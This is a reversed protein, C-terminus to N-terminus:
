GGGSCWSKTNLHFRDYGRNTLVISESYVSQKNFSLYKTLLDLAFTSGSGNSLADSVAGSKGAM